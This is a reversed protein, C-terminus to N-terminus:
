RTRNGKNRGFWRNAFDMMRNDDLIRAALGHDGPNGSELHRLIIKEIGQMLLNANHTALLDGLEQHKGPGDPLCDHLYLWLTRRVSGIHLKTEAVPDVCPCDRDVATLVKFAHLRLIYAARCQPFRTTGDPETSFPSPKRGRKAAAPHFSSLLTAFRSTKYHTM